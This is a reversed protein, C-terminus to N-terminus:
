QGSVEPWQSQTLAAAVGGPPLLSQRNALARAAILQDIYVPSPPSMLAAAVHANVAEPRMHAATNAVTRPIATLLSALPGSFVTEDNALVHHFSKDFRTERKLIAIRQDAKEPGLASV